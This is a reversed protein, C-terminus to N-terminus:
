TIETAPNIWQINLLIYEINLQFKLAWGSRLLSNRSAIIKFYRLKIYQLQLYTKIQLKM